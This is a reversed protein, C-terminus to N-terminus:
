LNKMQHWKSSSYNGQLLNFHATENFHQIIYFLLVRLPQKGSSLFLPFTWNPLGLLPQPRKHSSKMVM